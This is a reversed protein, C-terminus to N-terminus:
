AAGDPATAPLPLRARVDFGGDPRPGATLSGGLAATRERMGGLGNGPTVPDTVPGAAGGDDVVCVVLDDQRYEITITVAAGQGAHRRVNTLAEQVIRYAARDLEAPLPRPHGSVTTRVPLGADDTLDALRDLRPAPTRPPTEDQPHLAALV